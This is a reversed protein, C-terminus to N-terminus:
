HNIKRFGLVPIFAVLYVRFVGFEIIHSSLHLGSFLVCDASINRMKCHQWFQTGIVDFFKPKSILLMLLTFFM